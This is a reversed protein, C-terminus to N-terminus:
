SGFFKIGSALQRLIKIEIPYNNTKQLLIEFKSVYDNFIFQLIRELINEVKNM